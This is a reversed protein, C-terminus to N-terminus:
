LYSPYVTQKVIMLKVEFLTELHTKESPLHPRGVNM